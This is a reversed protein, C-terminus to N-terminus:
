CLGIIGIDSYRIGHSLIFYPRADRLFLFNQRRELDEITSLNLM